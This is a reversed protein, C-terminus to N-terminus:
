NLSLVELMFKVPLNLNSDKVSFRSSHIPQYEIQDLGFTLYCIPAIKEYFGFDDVHLYQPLLEFNFDLKLIKSIIEKSNVIVPYSKEFKCSANNFEQCIALVEDKYKLVNQTDFSRITGKIKVIEPFDDAVKGGHFSGINLIENESIQISKIRSYIEVAQDLQNISQGALAAHEKPAKLEISFCANTALFLGPHYGIKGNELEPHVHFTYFEDINYKDLINSEVVRWAGAANEEAPQFIVVLNKGSPNKMYEILLQIGWSTHLDHGCAHMNENNSKHEIEVEEKIPLGDIECRLAITQSTKGKIYAVIGTPSIKENIIGHKDLKNQILKTTEYETLGIEPIQHFQKYLKFIEKNM